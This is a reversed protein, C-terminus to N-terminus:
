MEGLPNFRVADQLYDPALHAYIMTTQIKAHGLIKQLTLINGGNMMFHSAFTHRLAHVAQGDPVGLAIEKIADRVLFYDLSPFVLKGGRKKIKKFLTESVPVTRNKSNKTNSFTIRCHHVRRQELAVVEGWRAGTALLIEAALREDDAGALKELLAFCEKKSLYGMERENVKMGRLGNVPNAHQFHGSSILASFMAGLAGVERNITSPQIGQEIRAVRLETLVAADLKHVGPDDMAECLRLLKLHTNHGSKMLQGHYKWWLDILVSLPRRDVSTGQWENNHQQALVWREYLVADSKTKFKKRIRRGKRGDPRM